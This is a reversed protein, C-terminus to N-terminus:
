RKRAPLKAAGEVTGERGANIRKSAGDSLESRNIFELACGGAKVVSGGDRHIAPHSTSDVQAKGVGIGVGDVISLVGQNGALWSRHLIGIEGAGLPTGTHGVLPVTPDATDGGFRAEEVAAVFKETLKKVVPFNGRYNVDAASTRDICGNGAIGVLVTVTQVVAEGAIATIGEGSGVVGSGVEAESTLNM